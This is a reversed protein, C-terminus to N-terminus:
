LTPSPSSALQMPGDIVASAEMRESCSRREGDCSRSASKTMVGGAKCSVVVAVLLEGLLDENLPAEGTIRLTLAVGDALPVVLPADVASLVTLPLM